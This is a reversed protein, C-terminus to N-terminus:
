RRIRAILEITRLTDKYHNQANELLKDSAFDVQAGKNCSRYLQNKMQGVQYNRTIALLLSYHAANNVNPMGINQFIPTFYAVPQALESSSIVNNPGSESSWQLHSQEESRLQHANILVGCCEEYFRDVVLQIAHSHAFVEDSNLSILFRGVQEQQAALNWCGGSGLDNSSPNIVILRDDDYSNLLESTGDNSHNDIVLLNFRFDCQQGLVSDISEKITEVANKVPMVVTAELPFEGEFAVPLFEDETLKAGLYFLHNTCVQEMEIQCKRQQLDDESNTTEEFNSILKTSLPEPLRMIKGMRSAQLRLGYFAAHESEEMDEIYEAIAAVHFLQLPGFDFDNRVSGMQYDITSCITTQKDKNEFYDAYLMVSASIEAVQLMREVSRNGLVIKENEMIFLVHTSEAHSAVIRLTEASFLNEVQVAMAGEYHCNEKSIAVIKAIATSEQLQAILQATHAVTQSVIFCNVKNQM